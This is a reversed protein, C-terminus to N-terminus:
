VKAWNEIRLGDIRGLHKENNTALVAGNSLACAGIFIDADEILAGKKRLDAYVRAACFLSYKTMYRVPFLTCFAEFRELKSKANVALLGRMTEYYVVEPLEVENGPLIAFLRERVTENGELLYSVINTDLMYLM